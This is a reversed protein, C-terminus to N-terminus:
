CEFISYICLPVGLYQSGAAASGATIPPVCGLKLFFVDPLYGIDVSHLNYLRITLVCLIM